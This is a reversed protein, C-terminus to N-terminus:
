RKEKNHFYNFELEHWVYYTTGLPDTMAQDNRLNCYDNADDLNDYTGIGFDGQARLDRLSADGDYTGALLADITSVQYLTNRSPGACGAALGLGLGWGVVALWRKM